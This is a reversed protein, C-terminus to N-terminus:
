ANLRTYRELAAARGAFTITRGVLVVLVAAAIMGIALVGLGTSFSGTEAKLWGMMSPGFFGGLNSLSNILAIGGAAATGGLFSPPLTWFVSLAAYIGCTCVTFATMIAVPSHLGAGPALFLAAAVLGAAGVLAASAVHWIREHRADSSLGWLIMAAMAFAYPVAAILTTQLPTAGMHQQQVIQPLWLNVGYLAVVIGFDPIALLWVRPDRLMPWFGTHDRSHEGALAAAIEAREGDNLWKADQPGNPLWWLVLVGLLVSPAGELLFLWQWGHLGHVPEIQLILGSIPQGIVNSFPLAAMFLAILQARHPTPFWYTLYLVMGPFFGAEALGLLFRAAYFSYPGTVFATAMSVLGWSLMIRSIWLRAGVRELIVNSPVEFLFYGLFFIGAGFGYAADGLHLDRNMTLSAASVNVRDLFSVVYLLAMFPILRWTAKAFVGRDM